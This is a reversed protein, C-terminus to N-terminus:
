LKVTLSKPYFFDGIESHDIGLADSWVIIDDKVFGRKASLKRSITNESVGIEEAFAKNTGFKEVIRGRLKSYETKM